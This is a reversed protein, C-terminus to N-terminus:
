VYVVRVRCLEVVMYNGVQSLWQSDFNVRGTGQRTLNQSRSNTGLTFWLICWKSRGSFYLIGRVMLLQRSSSIVFYKLFVDSNSLLQQTFQTHPRLYFDYIDKITITSTKHTSSSSIHTYVLYVVHMHVSCELAWVIIWWFHVFNYCIFLQDSFQYEFIFM